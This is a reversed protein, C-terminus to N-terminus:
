SGSVSLPSGDEGTGTELYGATCFIRKAVKVSADVDEAVQVNVKEMAISAIM